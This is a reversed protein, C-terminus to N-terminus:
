SSPRSCRTSAPRTAAAPRGDRRADGRPRGRGASRHLGADARAGAHLRDGPEARRTPVWRALAEVDDSTVVQGDENRLLNELLVKLAFPLRAVDFKSQLADLRFIEYSRDGVTLQSRADFSNM